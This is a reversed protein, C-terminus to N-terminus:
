EFVPAKLAELEDDSLVETFAIAQGRAKSRHPDIRRCRRRICNSDNIQFIVQGTQFPISDAFIYAGAKSINLIIGETHLDSDEARIAAAIGEIAKYREYNRREKM